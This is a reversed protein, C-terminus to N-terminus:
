AIDKLPTPKAIGYGQAFDVGIERLKAGIDDNEVFEAITKKGMVHGIDNISKVMASDIPDEIMDKVFSGDIKLYDVPFNKLYEFSAMGTGFDDLAFRCGYERLSQILEKAVDTNAVAMTETVEFCIKEPPIRYKEFQTEIHNLLGSDGLSSGSLNISCLSLEELHDPHEHLWKFTNKIVWYDIKTIMNYREAAGLFIFPPVLKGEEDTLRLLIEYHKGTSEGDNLPAITQYYLIFRDNDLADKLKSVWQMEGHRNAIEIDDERYLHLKNRGSDKAVFCASDAKRLVESVNETENNILVIGMSLSIIFNQGRWSFGQMEITTRIRNCTMLAQEATSNRLLIGFEDGGLRGVIDGQPSEEEVVPAIERLLQDGAIHGCTDNIVKFLDVDIYVMAHITNKKRASEISLKLRREFERRNVLGTLEDHSSQYSIQRTLQRAGSIDRFVLVTGTTEGDANIIPTVSDEISIKEGIKPVLLHSHLGINQGLKIAKTVPSEIQEKSLESIIKYIESIHNGLAEEVSWGTLKEAKPNMHRISGNHDTTIVADNLANLTLLNKQREENIEEESEKISTIDTISGSIYPPSNDDCSEVSVGKALVWIFGASNHKVRHIHEFSDINGKCIGCLLQQFEEREDGFINNIWLNFSTESDSPNDPSEIGMIAYWRHTFKATKDGPNFSWFGDNSTYTSLQLAHKQTSLDTFLTGLQEILDSSKSNTVTKSRSNDPNDTLLLKYLNHLRKKFATSAIIIAVMSSLMITAIIILYIAINTKSILSASTNHEAAIALTTFGIISFIIAATYSISKIFQKLIIIIKM